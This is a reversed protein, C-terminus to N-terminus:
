WACEGTKFESVKDATESVLICVTNGDHSLQVMNMVPDIEGSTTALKEGDWVVVAGGDPGKVTVVVGHGIDRREIMEFLLSAKRPDDANLDDSSGEGASAASRLQRELLEAEIRAGLMDAVTEYSIESLKTPEEIVPEVYSFTVATGENGQVRLVRNEDDLRVVVPGSAGGSTLQYECAGDVRLPAGAAYETFDILDGLSSVGGGVGGLDTDILAKDIMNELANEEWGGPEGTSQGTPVWEDDSLGDVAGEFYRTYLRGNTGREEAIWASDSPEAGAYSVFWDGSKTRAAEVIKMESDDGAVHEYRASTAAKVPTALVGLVDAQECPRDDAVTTTESKSGCAGLLIAGASVAAIFRGCRTITSHHQM